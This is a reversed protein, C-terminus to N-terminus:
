LNDFFQKYKKEDALTGDFYFDSDICFGGDHRKIVKKKCLQKFIIPIKRKPINTMVEYISPHFEKIHNGVIGNELIIRALATTLKIENGTLQKENVYVLMKHYKDM